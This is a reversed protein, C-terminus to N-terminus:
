RLLLLTGRVANGEQLMFWQVLLRGGLAGTGALPGPSGTPILREAVVKATLLPTGHRQGLLRKDGTLM